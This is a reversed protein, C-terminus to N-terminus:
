FKKPIFFQQILTINDPFSKDRQDKKFPQIHWQDRHIMKIEM